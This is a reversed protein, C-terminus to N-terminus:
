SRLKMNMSTMFVLRVQPVGSFGYSLLPGIPASPQGLPSKPVQTRVSVFFTLPM